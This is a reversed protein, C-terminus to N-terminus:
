HVRLGIGDPGIGVPGLLPWCDGRASVGWEDAMFMEMNGHALAVLGEVNAILHLGNTM